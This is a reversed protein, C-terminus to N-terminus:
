ATRDGRRSGTPVGTSVAARLRPTSMSETHPPRAMQPRQWTVSLVPSNAFSPMVDCSVWRPSAVWASFFYSRM